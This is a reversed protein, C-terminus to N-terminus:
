PWKQAGHLVDAIDVPRGHVDPLVFWPVREGVNLADRAVGAKDVRDIADARAKREKPSRAAWATRRQQELEEELSM